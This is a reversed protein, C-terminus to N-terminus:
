TIEDEAPNQRKGRNGGNKCWFTASFVTLGFVQKQTVIGM